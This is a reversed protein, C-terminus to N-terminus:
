VRLREGPPFPPRPLLLFFFLSVVLVGDPLSFPLAPRGVPCYLFGDSKDDIFVLRTGSPDPVVKRIGVPHRHENIYQWDEIYFCHIVGTQM